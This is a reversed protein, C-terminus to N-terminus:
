RNLPTSLLDRFSCLTSTETNSIWHSVDISFLVQAGYSPLLTDEVFAISCRVLPSLILNGSEAVRCEQGIAAQFGNERLMGQLPHQSATCFVGAKEAAAALKVLSFSEYWLFAFHFLHLADVLILRM